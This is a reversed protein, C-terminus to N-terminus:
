VEANRRVVAAPQRRPASGRRQLHLADSQTSLECDLGPMPAQGRENRYRHGLFFESIGVTGPNHNTEGGLVCSVRKARVQNSTMRLPSTTFRFRAPNGGQGM